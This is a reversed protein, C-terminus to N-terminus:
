SSCSNKNKGCPCCKGGSPTSNSESSSSPPKQGYDNIYFGEGKFSLGIGGGPGRQLDPKGCKECLTLPADIIKQSVEIKNGCSKCTYDYTPM